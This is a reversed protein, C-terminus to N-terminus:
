HQFQQLQDEKQQLQDQLHQFEDERYVQIKVPTAPTFFQGYRLHCYDVYWSFLFYQVANCANIVSTM